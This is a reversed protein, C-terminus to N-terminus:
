IRLVTLIAELNIPIHLVDGTQINVETPRSNYWAIVWWLRADGYYQDALKYYRDGYKWIHTNTRLNVRDRLSPNKLILTEYQVIAKLGRSKRLPAYYESSNVLKRKNLYRSM